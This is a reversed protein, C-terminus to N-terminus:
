LGLKSLKNYYMAGTLTCEILANFEEETLRLSVAIYQSKSPKMIKPHENPIKVKAVVKGKLYIYGKNHASRKNIIRPKIKKKISQRIDKESFDKIKHM